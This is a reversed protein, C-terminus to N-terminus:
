IDQQIADGSESQVMEGASQMGGFRLYRELGQKKSGTKVFVGTLQRSRSAGIWIWVQRSVGGGSGFRKKGGGVQM